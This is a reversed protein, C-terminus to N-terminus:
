VKTEAFDLGNDEGLAAVRGGFHPPTDFLRFPISPALFTSDQMSINSFAQRSVYQDVTFLEEMTPVRALPIRMAQGKHFLAETSQTALAQIIAPELVDASALRNISANFFDVGVFDDLSLLQCFARWQSPTLATVGLWGDKCPWIGLPYTPPFRNIGMRPPLPNENFANIAMLDTMCMNAEFISNDLAFPQKLNGMLQGLLHGLAGNFASLGGVIQAQVGNPIIPPGAEEGIGKMLGTLAHIVGDSGQYKAYPGTLGFWSIACTNTNIGALSDTNPLTAPDYVILDAQTVAPETALNNHNGVVSAKNCHLYGHMASVPEEGPTSPIFPKLQRTPFGQAPEVNTVTAGYDAFLKCAYSTAVTGSVDVINLGDFPKTQSSGKTETSHPAQQQM